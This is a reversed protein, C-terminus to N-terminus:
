RHTPPGLESWNEMILTAGHLQGDAEIERGVLAEVAPDHFPNGGRRRLVLEDKETVLLVAPRESKTGRAYTRKVVRGRRRVNV